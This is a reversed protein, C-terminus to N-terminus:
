KGSSHPYLLRNQQMVAGGMQGPMFPPQIPQMPIGGAGGHMYLLPQHPATFIGQPTQILQQQSAVPLLPQGGPQSILQQQLSTSMPGIVQPHPLEMLKPSGAVVQPAMVTQGVFGGGGQVSAYHPIGSHIAQGPVQQLHRILGASVTPQGASVVYASSSPTTLLVPEQILTPTPQHSRQRPSKHSSYRPRQGGQLHYVSSNRVASSQTPSPSAATRAVTTTATATAPMFAVPNFEKANPDLKFAKIAKEKKGGNEVVPESPAESTVKEM